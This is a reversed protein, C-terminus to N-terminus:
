RARDTRERRRENHNCWLDFLVLKSTSVPVFGVEFGEVGDAGDDLGEIERHCLYSKAPEIVVAQHFALVTIRYKDASRIHRM